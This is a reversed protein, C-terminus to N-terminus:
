DDQMERNNSKAVRPGASPLSLWAFVAGDLPAAQAM